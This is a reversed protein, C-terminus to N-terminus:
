PPLPTRLDTPAAITGCAVRVYEAGLLVVAVAYYVWLMVAIFAGVVGYVTYDSGLAVLALVRHGVEWLAAALFAGGSAESWRVPAKPLVRYTVTLLLWNVAVAVAVTALNWPLPPLPLSTWVTQVMTLAMGGLFSVAAFLGIGLLMLFARLRGVLISRVTAILGKGKRPPLNWIRDFARELQAFVAMAALVLLAFGILGSTAAGARASQLVVALQRALEPGAQRGILDLLESRADQGWGTAQLTLGALSLLVIVLPFISLAACYSVAAAHQPCDDRVWQTYTAYLSKVLRKGAAFPM